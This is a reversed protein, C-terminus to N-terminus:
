KSSPLAQNRTGTPAEYHIVPNYIRSSKHHNTIEFSMSIAILGTGEFAEHKLNNNNKTPSVSV